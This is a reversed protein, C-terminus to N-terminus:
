TKDAAVFGDRPQCFNPTFSSSPSPSPDNPLPQGPQHLFSRRQQGPQCVGRVWSFIPPFPRAVHVSPTARHLSAPGAWGQWAWRSPRLSLYTAQRSPPQQSISGPLSHPGSVSTSQLWASSASSSCHLRRLRHQGGGRNCTCECTCTTPVRRASTAKSSGTSPPTGPWSGLRVRGQGPSGSATPAGAKGDM